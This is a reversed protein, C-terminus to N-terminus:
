RRNEQKSQEVFGRLFMLVHERHNKKDPLMRYLEVLELEDETLDDVGAGLFYNVPRNLIEPLKVLHDVSLTNKGTELQSYSNKKLGLSMAVEDQTLGLQERAIRLRSGVAVKLEDSMSGRKAM